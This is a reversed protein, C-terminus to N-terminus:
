LLEVGVESRSGLFNATCKETLLSSLGAEQYKKNKSRNFSPLRLVKILSSDEKTSSPPFSIDQNELLDTYVANRLAEESASTSKLARQVFAAVEYAQIETLEKVDDFFLNVDGNHVQIDVLLKGVDLVPTKSASIVGHNKFPHHYTQPDSANRRSIGSASQIILVSHVVVDHHINEKLELCQKVSIVFVVFYPQSNLASYVPFQFVSLGFSQVTRGHVTISLTLSHSLLCYWYSM